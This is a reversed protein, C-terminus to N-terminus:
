ARNSRPYLECGRRFSYPRLLQLLRRCLSESIQRSREPGSRSSNGVTPTSSDTNTIPPGSIVPSGALERLHQFLEQKHELIRDLCRYLRDKEAVAFDTAVLEAMATQDFWLRPVPFESGRKLLRNVVLLRLVKEWPVDEREAPLKAQWFEDLRLQRWLECALWCGGFTRLRELLMEGLNVQLADVESVAM